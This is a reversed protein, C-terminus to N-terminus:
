KIVKQYRKGDFEITTDRPSKMTVVYVALGSTLEFRGDDTELWTGSMKTSKNGSNDTNWEFLEWVGSKVELELRWDGESKWRGGFGEERSSTCGSCSSLVMVTFVCAVVLLVYTSSGGIRLFENVVM